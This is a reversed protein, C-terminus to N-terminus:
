PRQGVRRRRADGPPLRTCVLTCDDAEGRRCRSCSRRMGCVKGRSFDCHRMVVDLDAASGPVPRPPYGHNQERERTFYGRSPGVGLTSSTLKETARVLPKPRAPNPLPTTFRLVAPVLAFGEDAGSRDVIYATSLACAREDRSPYHGAAVEWKWVKRLDEDRFVLTEGRGFRLPGPWMKETTLYRRHLAYLVYVTCVCLVCLYVYNRRARYVVSTAHHHTYRFSCTPLLVFERASRFLM